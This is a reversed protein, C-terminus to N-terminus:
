RHFAKAPFGDLQECRGPIVKRGHGGHIVPGVGNVHAARLEPSPLGRAIRRFLDGTRDSVGVTVAHPHVGREVREEPVVLQLLGFPLRALQDGRPDIREDHLVHGQPPHIKRDLQMGRRLHRVARGFPRPEQALRPERADNQLPVKREVFDARDAARRPGLHLAEHVPRDAHPVAAAAEQRPRHGRAAAVAACAALGAPEGVVQRVAASVGIDRPLVQERHAVHIQRRM